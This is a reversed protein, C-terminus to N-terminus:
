AVDGSQVPALRGLSLGSMRERLSSVKQEPRNLLVRNCEEVREKSGIM